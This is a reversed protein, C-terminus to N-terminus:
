VGERAVSILASLEYLHDIRYPAFLEKAIWLPREDREDKHIAKTLWHSGRHLARESEERLWGCPRLASLILLAYSTEARTTVDGSGWGGDAKQERLVVDLAKKIQETYGLPKLALIVELTNYIWSTHWKDALWRGDATQRKLLFEEVAPYREGTEALGYLAHANALISPNLERHFTCFHDGNKFQFIVCPDVPHKTARLVAVGVATDDVDPTFAEDFGVGHTLQMIRCLEDVVPDVVDQLGPHTLLGTVLLTYLAYAIEFGPIPWATPVVGPINVGTATAACQLYQRARAVPKAFEPRCRARQLWAATAAPSLGITGCPDPELATVDQRLAEWSHAPPTGATIARTCIKQLKQKRISYLNEYPGTDFPLGMCEAEELLYPLIVEAGSALADIPIEHWQEAQRRLFDIGADRSAQAHPMNRYTHLALVAALTPVDRTYSAEPFGWGGDAQQQSQLWDLAPKVGEQPPYLRLIQATDYVSPSMSGGNRGLNAILTRLESLLEDTNANM